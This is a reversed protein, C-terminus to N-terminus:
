RRAPLVNVSAAAVADSLLGSDSVRAKVSYLGPVRASFPAAAQGASNVRVTEVIRGNVSFEVSRRDRAAEPSLQVRLMVREGTMAVDPSVRLWTILPETESGSLLRELRLPPPAADSDGTTRAVREAPEPEEDTAKATKKEKAKEDPASPDREVTVYAAHYGRAEAARLVHQVRARGTGTATYWVGLAAITSFVIATGVPGTREALSDGLTRELILLLFGAFLLALIDIGNHTIRVYGGVLALAVVAWILPRWWGADHWPIRFAM